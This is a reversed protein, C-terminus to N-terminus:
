YFLRKNKLVKKRNQLDIACPAISILFIEIQSLLCVLLEVTYLIYVAKIEGLCCIPM